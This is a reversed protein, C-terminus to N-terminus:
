RRYYFVVKIKQFVTNTTIVSLVNQEHPYSCQRCTGGVKMLMRVGGGDLSVSQSSGVTAVSSCWRHPLLFLM